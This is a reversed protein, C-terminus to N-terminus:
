MTMTAVLRGPRGPGIMTPWFEAILPAILSVVCGIVTVTVATVGSAPTRRTVFQRTRATPRSPWSTPRPSSTGGQGAPNAASAAPTSGASPRALVLLVDAALPGTRVPQEVVQVRVPIEGHFPACTSAQRVTTFWSANPLVTTSLGESSAGTDATGIAPSNKSRGSTRHTLKVPEDAVPRINASRAPRTSL